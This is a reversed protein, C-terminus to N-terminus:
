LAVDGLLLRYMVDATLGGAAAPPTKSPPAPDNGPFQALGTLPMAAALCAVAPVFGIRRFQTLLAKRRDARRRGPTLLRAPSGILRPYIRCRLLRAPRGGNAGRGGIGSSGSTSVVRRPM